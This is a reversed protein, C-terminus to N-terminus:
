LAKLRAADLVAISRGQKHILGQAELADFARYLSARGMNLQKALEAYPIRVHVTDGQAANEYEGCLYRALARETHAGSISRLRTNLYYIRGSLFRIYNRAIQFAERMLQELLPEPFALIRARTKVTFEVAYADHDHFLASPGFSAGAEIRKMVLGRGGSDPQVALLTGSLLICFCRRARGPGFLPAAPAVEWLECQPDNAARIVAQPACDQFLDSRRLLDMDQKTLRNCDM